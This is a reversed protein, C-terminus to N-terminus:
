TIDFGLTKGLVTPLSAKWVTGEQIILPKLRSGAHATRFGIQMRGEHVELADADIATTRRHEAV